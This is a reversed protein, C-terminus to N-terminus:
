PAVDVTGLVAADGATSGAPGTAPLRELTALRYLGTRLQYHGPRLHSPLALPYHDRLTQGPEWASTPWWGDLPAADYGAVREGHEDVLHVFIQLDEGVPALAQWYLDLDLVDGPHAVPNGLRYGDLRVRDDFEVPAPQPAAPSAAPSAPQLPLVRLNAVGVPAQEGGSTESPYSSMTDRDYMGVDVKLLTPTALNWPVSVRYRDVIVSGVPWQSTPLTGWGPYSDLQAVVQQGPGFLHVFLSADYPAPELAEWYLTLDFPEGPRVTGPTVEVGVLRIRRDITIPDIQAGPPTQGAAILPPKRYAPLILLPLCAAALILMAAPPAGWWVMRGPWWRSWGFLLVINAGALAPMLLRGQSGPTMSTWRLVAISSLVFWLALMVLVSTRVQPEPAALKRRRWLHWGLGALSAIVFADWLRYVWAPLALNFWGFVGLLSARLGALETGLDSLALPRPRPGVIQLFASLGTLDGYLRWNRVYWWGALAVAVALMAAVRGMSHRMQGRRLASAGLVVAALLWLGLANLKTLAALGLVVGLVVSDRWSLLPDLHGCCARALLWLALAALFITLNDNNVSASIFIFQPTFATLAAAALALRPQTPLALCALRFAFYVTGCGLLISLFRLLHVALTMGQWPWAEGEGHVWLNKNGLQLPNGLNAHPNRVLGADDWEVGGARTLLAGLVYYLPPQGGEQAWPGPRAPELVPLSGGEALQRVYVAHHNEDPTEFLPIAISYAVALLVYIFIVAGIGRWSTSRM